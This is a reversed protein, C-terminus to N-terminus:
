GGVEPEGGALIREVSGPRWGMSQEVGACYEARTALDSAFRWRVAEFWAEGVLVPEARDLEARRAMMFEAFRGIGQESRQNPTLDSM